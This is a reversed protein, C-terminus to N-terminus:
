GKNKAKELKKKKALKYAAYGAVGLGAVGAAGALAGKHEGAKRVVDDVIAKPSNNYNKLRKKFADNKADNAVQAQTRIKASPIKSLEAEQEKKMKDRLNLENSVVSSGGNRAIYGLGLAQTELAADVFAKNTTANGPMVGIYKRDSDSSIVRKLLDEDPIKQDESLVMEIWYNVYNKLEMLENLNNNM